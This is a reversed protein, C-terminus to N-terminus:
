SLPTKGADGRLIFRACLPLLLAILIFRAIHHSSVYLPDLGLAIGLVVMAELGGPAFAVLAEAWPTGVWAHTLEAGALAVLSTIFFVTLAPFFLGRLAALTLGHFRSGAFVGILFIALNAIAAPPAGSILGTAHTLGAGLMGGLLYPALMRLRVLLLAFCLGLALVLGFGLPSVLPSVPPALQAMNLSVLSPLLAVLVFMRFSQVLTVRLM